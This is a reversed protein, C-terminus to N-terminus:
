SSSFLASRETYPHAVQRHERIHYNYSLPVKETLRCVPEWTSGTYLDGEGWYFRLLPPLPPPPSDTCLSGLHFPAVFFITSAMPFFWREQGLRARWNGQRGAESPVRNALWLSRSWAYRGYLFAVGHSAFGAGENFVTYWWTCESALSVEHLCRFQCQIKGWFTVKKTLTVRQWFQDSYGFRPM